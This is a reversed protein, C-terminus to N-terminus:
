AAELWALVFLRGVLFYLSAGVLLWAAFRPPPATEAQGRDHYWAGLISWILLGFALDGISGIPPHLVLMALGVAFALGPGLLRWWTSCFCGTFSGTEPSAM